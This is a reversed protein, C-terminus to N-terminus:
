IIYIFKNIDNLINFMLIKVDKLIDEKELRELSRVKKVM